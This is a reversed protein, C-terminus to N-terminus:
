LNFMCLRGVHFDDEPSLVLWSSLRHVISILTEAEAAMCCGLMWQKCLQLVLYPLLSIGAMGCGCARATLQTSCILCNGWVGSDLQSMELGALLLMIVQIVRDPPM